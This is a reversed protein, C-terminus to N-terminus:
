TLYGSPLLRACCCWKAGSLWKGGACDANVGAFFRAAPDHWGWQEENSQTVDGGANNKIYICIHIYSYICVIM